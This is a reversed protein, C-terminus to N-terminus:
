LTVFVHSMSNQWRVDANCKGYWCVLVKIICMPMRRDLLKSFLVYHNVKDFAKSIDLATMTVTSGQKNFYNLVSKVTYIAHMCGVNEKFGFQLESTKMFDKLRLLLCLEFLKSLAPSLTIGHYNDASGRNGTTDKVLPIIIGTGFADPV